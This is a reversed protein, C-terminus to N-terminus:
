KLIITKIIVKAINGKKVAEQTLKRAEGFNSCKLTQGTTDNKYFYKTMRNEKERIDSLIISNYGITQYQWATFDKINGISMIDSLQIIYNYEIM